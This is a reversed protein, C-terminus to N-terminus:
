GGGEAGGPIRVTVMTGRPSRAAFVVNGGCQSARERIGLIGLSRSSAIIEAPIGVGDDAVELVVAGEEIALRVSVETAKAHRLINTGVEQFIRFMATACRPAIVLAEQAVEVHCGLGSRACLEQAQWEIAAALGLDDLVSPRLATAISRVTEITSDVVKLSGGLRGSLRERGPETAAEALHKKVWVVDMKLATLAQGVVDHVERAIRTAEEERVVDMRELLLHLEKTRIELSQAAEYLSVERQAVAAAMEDFAVALRAIEAPSGSQLARAALDGSALRQASATLADLPRLTARTGFWALMLTVLAALSMFLLNRRLARDAAGYVSGVEFGVSLWANGLARFAWIRRVNDIGAVVASGTGIQHMAVFLPTEPLTRGTWYLDADPHRALVFGDDRVMVVAADRPLPTREALHRVFALDLAAFVV